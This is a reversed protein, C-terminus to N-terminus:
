PLSQMKKQLNRIFCVWTFLNNWKILHFFYVIDCSGKRPFLILFIQNLPMSRGWSLSKLHFFKHRPLQKKKAPSSTQSEIFLFRMLIFKKCKWWFFLALKVRSFSLEHINNKWRKVLMRPNHRKEDYHWKIQLWLEKEQKEWEFHFNECEKLFFLVFDTFSGSFKCKLSRFNKKLLEYSKQQNKMTQFCKQTCVWDFQKKRTDFEFIKNIM